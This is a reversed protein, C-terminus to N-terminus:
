TPQMTVTVGIKSGIDALETELRGADVFHPVEVEIAMVYMPTDGHLVHTTLNTINVSQSALHATIGHVIGPRDAGRVEVTHRPTDPAPEVAEEPRLDSLHLWLKHTERVTALRGALQEGIMGEPMRLMLMCTFTGGLRAMASDEINCDAAYLIESIGAVIGPRDRGVATLLAYNAM